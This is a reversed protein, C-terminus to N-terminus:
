ESHSLRSRCGVIWRNSRGDESTTCVGGAPVSLSYDPGSLISDRVLMLDLEAVGGIEDAPETAPFLWTAVVSLADGTILGCSCITGERFRSSFPM